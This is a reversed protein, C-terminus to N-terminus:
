PKLPPLDPQLQPAPSICASKSATLAFKGAVPSVLMCLMTVHGNAQARLSSSTCALTCALQCATHTHPRALTWPISAPLTPYQDLMAGRPLLDAM